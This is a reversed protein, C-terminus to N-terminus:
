PLIEAGRYEEEALRELDVKAEEEVASELRSYTSPKKPAITCCMGPRISTQYTGIRKAIREIEIKDFGILPRLV